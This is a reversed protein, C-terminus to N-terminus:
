LPVSSHGEAEDPCLEAHLVAETVRGVVGSLADRSLGSLSEMVVMM